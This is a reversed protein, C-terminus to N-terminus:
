FLKVYSRSGFKEPVDTVNLVTSYYSSWISDTHQSPFSPFSNNRAFVFEPQLQLSLLGTKLFIGSSLQAQYGKAPIMSGDNFGYPHHTNYQQRFTLPLIIAQKSTDAIYSDANLRKFNGNRYVSDISSFSSISIPRVCFSIM